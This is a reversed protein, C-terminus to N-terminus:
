LHIRELEREREREREKVKSPWQLTERLTTKAAALGGVHSFDVRSSNHLSLGRLSSPVFGELARHLCSASINIHPVLEEQPFQSLLSSSAAVVTAVSDKKAPTYGFFPHRPSSRLPAARSRISEQAALSVARNVLAM